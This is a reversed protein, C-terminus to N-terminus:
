PKIPAVVYLYNIEEQEPRILVPKEFDMMEFRVKECNLSNLFDIIYSSNFIIEIPEDNYNISIQDFAEGLEPNFARLQLINEKFSFKIARGKESSFISVRKISDKLEERDIVAIKKNNTPIASRWPPFKVDV